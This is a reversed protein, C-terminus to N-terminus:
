RWQAPRERQPAPVPEAATGARLMAEARETLANLSEAIRALAAPSRPDPDALPEGIVVAIRAGPLPM